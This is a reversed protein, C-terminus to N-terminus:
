APRPVNRRCGSLTPLQCYPHLNDADVAFMDKPMILTRAYEHAGLAVGHELEARLYVARGQTM